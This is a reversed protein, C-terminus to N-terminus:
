KIMYQVGIILNIKSMTMRGMRWTLKSSGQEDLYMANDEEDYEVGIISDTRFGNLGVRFERLNLNWRGAINLLLRESLPFKKGAGFYLSYWFNEVPARLKLPIKQDNYRITGIRDQLNMYDFSFGMSAYSGVPAEQRPYYYNFQIFLSNLPTYGRNILSAGYPMALSLIDSNLSPTSEQQLLIPINKQKFGIIFEESNKRSFSISIEPSLLRAKAPEFQREFVNSGDFVEAGLPRLSQDRYRQYIFNSQIGITRGFYEGQGCLSSAICIFIFCSKIRKINIM